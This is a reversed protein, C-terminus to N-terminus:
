VSSEEQIPLREGMHEMLRRGEEGSFTEKCGECTYSTARDPKGMDEASDWHPILVGHPCIPDPAVAQAAPGDEKRGLLRSLFGM